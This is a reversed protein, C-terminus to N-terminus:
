KVEINVIKGLVGIYKKGGKNKYPCVRVYYTEYSQLKKITVSKKNAGAVTKTVAKSMDKNLSYVVRYGSAGKRPTWSVTMQKKGAKVKPAKMGALYRYKVISEAVQAGKTKKHASYKFQYLGNKKLKKFTHTMKTGKWKYTWKKSGAKRYAVRYVKAGDVTKYEVKVAKKKVFADTKINTKVVPSTMTKSYAGYIDIGADDDVMGYVYGRLKVVYKKGVKLNTLTYSEEGAKVVKTQWKSAGKVKYKIQYKTIGSKKQDKINVTLKGDGAKLSKIVAKAPVINFGGDVTGRYNKDTSKVKVTVVGVGCKVNDKYSVTYSKVPIQDGLSNYVRVSPKKAKGDYVYSNPDISIDDIKDKLVKIKVVATGVGDVTVYVYTEGVKKAEIAANNPNKKDQTLSIIEPDAVEWKIESSPVDVDEAGAFNLRLESNRLDPNLFGLEKKGDVRMTLDPATNSYGKISFNDMSYITDDDTEFIMKKTDKHSLDMWKNNINVFSENKNVVGVQWTSDGNLKAAAESASMNIYFCYHGEPTRHTQVISYHQGKQINVDKNLKMKHFGGFEYEGSITDILKGDTPSTFDDPLLYIKSEVTTGPSSTMCSVQELVQSEDAKFVNSMAVYDEIDAANINEVPMFDYEDINYTSGINSKEFALAEPMALSKDYYSLWFYGSGVSVTEGDANKGEVPIGWDGYARDPFQREGSGWSNKVLWAGDKPPQHGSIFNSKSYDDDWGVITVAHTAQEADYTYHAWKDSIYQPDYDEDNPHSQDSSFAIQVARKNILQEKIAATGAANYSYEKTDEDVVAPSPLMYSEKLVYSQMFRAKEDINGKDDRISWDDQDDYCFNGQKGDVKIFRKIVSGNKGRYIFREDRSELNPGMGSAYLSTAYFPTGGGNFKDTVSVGEKAHTGEGYQSDSPDSIPNSVFYVLHKESLDLEKLGKEEDDAAAYGDKEALGSGIISTEAAATAAFGWCTGFPNQFKVPTVYSTDGKGDGDTDVSRLDFKAPYSVALAKKQGAKTTYDFADKSMDSIQGGLEAFPDNAGHAVSTPLMPTFALTIALALTITILKKM